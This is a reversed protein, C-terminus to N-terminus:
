DAVFPIDFLMDQGFIAAGQSAKLVMHYTSCIAWAANNNFIDIDAPEVSEAMDIESTHIITGLVQHICECIAYAHPNKITTPEHKIGYSNCLTEFHLKFESGNDWILYQCKPYRCLWIKNVLKSLCDSSMDFVEEEIIKEKRNVMTTQLKMVLPLEMIEFWSSALNIMTLAM